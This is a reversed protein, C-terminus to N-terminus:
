LTAHIIGIVRRNICFSKDRVVTAAFRNLVVPRDIAVSKAHQRRNYSSPSSAYHTKNSTPLQRAARYPLTSTASFAAYLERHMRIVRGHFVHAPQRPDEVVGVAQPPQDLFDRVGEVADRKALSRDGRHADIHELLNSIERSEVADLQHVNARHATGNGFVRFDEDVLAVNVHKLRHFRIAVRSVLSRKHGIM